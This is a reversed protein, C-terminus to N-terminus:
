EARKGPRISCSMPQPVVSGMLFYEGICMEHEEMGVSLM